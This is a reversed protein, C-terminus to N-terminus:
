TVNGQVGTFILPWDVFATPASQSSVSFSFRFENREGEMTLFAEWWIPYCGVGRKLFLDQRSGIDM